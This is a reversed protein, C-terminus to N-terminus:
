ATLRLARTISGRVYLRWAGGVGLILIAVLGVYSGIVVGWDTTLLFPPLVRDGEADVELFRLTLRAIRDGLFSGLGLGIIAVMAYEAMLQGLLAGRGIGLTRLVAMELMRDRATLVVSVLFAVVVLIAVAVFSVLLIGSGGAAVLPDNGVTALLARQDTVPAGAESLDNLAAVTRMRREPDSPGTVWMENIPAPSRFDLTAGLHNLEAVDTILFGGNERPDLTPFFAVSAIIRVDIRFSGLHLPAEDGVRLGHNALFTESVIVNLACRGGADCLNPSPLYLGRRGPSVGATWRYEVASNGSHAVVDTRREVADTAGTAALPQLLWRRADSEFGEILLREGRETTATLDDFLLSGPEGVLQSEGETYTIAHLTFPPRADIFAAPEAADGRLEQWLGAAGPNGLGVRFFRGDRDRVQLWVSLDNRPVSPNVWLSLEALDDPLPLGGLSAFPRLKPLLTTLPEASFDDRFWLMSAAQASDLALIRVERGRAGTAGVSGKRRIALATASAGPVAEIQAQVLGPPRPDIGARLDVGAEFRAREDFSRDVTADYSAAFTGLAAALMTLVSLRIVPGPNRVAQRLAAAIPMAIRDSAIWALAALAPPLLRLVLLIAILGVLAPAILVLPETSLGGVTNRTFVADRAGVSWVLFGAVAVFAIDLYYRQFVNRGAPRAAVHRATGPQVRAAQAVPVLVAGLALAAGALALAWAQPTLSIAIWDDGSVDRFSGVFGLASVATAAILPAVAATLIVIPLLQLAYLGLVQPLSAGRSRLLAIEDTEGSVLLRAMVFIFFVVVSVVQVLILLIPVVSFDRGEQFSRLAGEFSSSVTGGVSAMDTQLGAFRDLDAPIGVSDFASLPIADVIRIDARYGPLLESLPGFLADSHVFLAFVRPLVLSKRPERPRALSALAADWFPDDLNIADFIGVVEVPFQLSILGTTVCPELSPPASATPGGFLPPERDCDDYVDAVAFADGVRLRAFEAHARPLAVEIPGDLQSLGLEPDVALTPPAPPRGEFAVHSEWGEITTFEGGLPASGTIQTEALLRLDSVRGSRTRRPLAIDGFHADLSAEAFDRVAQAREGGLLTQSLTVQVSGIQGAERDLEFDLGLDTLARTYVTTSAMLVSMVLIGLGVVGLLRWNARARLFLLRLTTNGRARHDARWTYRAIPIEGCVRGRPALRLVWPRVPQRRATRPEPATPTTRGM